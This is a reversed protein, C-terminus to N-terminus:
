EDKKTPLHTSIKFNHNIDLANPLKFAEITNTFPKLSVQEKIEKFPKIFEYFSKIFVMLEISSAVDTLIQSTTQVFTEIVAMNDNDSYIVDEMIEIAKELKKNVKNLRKKVSIFEDFTFTKHHMVKNRYEQLYEIDDEVSSLDKYKGFFHEWLKIPHLSNIHLIIEEKSLNCITKPSLENDLLDKVSILQVEKFLYSKLQEYTLEELANEILDKKNIGSKGKLENQLSKEFTKDFWEAGFLKIITLYILERLRREFKGFHSMTRCCFSHSAEDYTKTIFYDKRHYGKTIIQSAKDLIEAAKAPKEDCMIKLYVMNSEESSLEAYIAYLNGKSDTINLKDLDSSNFLSFLMNEVKSHISERDNENNKQIFIYNVEMKIVM